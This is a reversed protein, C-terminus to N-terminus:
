SSDLMALAVVAFLAPERMFFHTAPHKVAIIHTDSVDQVSVLQAAFYSSVVM